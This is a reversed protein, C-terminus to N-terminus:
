RLLLAILIAQVGSGVIGLATLAVVRLTRVVVFIRVNSVIRRVAVSTLILVGIALSKQLAILLSKLLVSAIVTVPVVAAAPWPLNRAFQVPKRLNDLIFIGRDL